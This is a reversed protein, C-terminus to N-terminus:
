ELVELRGVDMLWGAKQADFTQGWIKVKHDIFQDLDLVSSFLYVTQSPGGIRELHHTGEGDIGGEKVVGVVEDTFTDDKPVGFVSGKKIKEQAVQGSETPQGISAIRTSLLWGTLVGGAVVALVAGVIAWKGSFDFSDSPAQETSTSETPVNTVDQIIPEQQEENMM